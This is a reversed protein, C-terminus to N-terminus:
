LSKNNTTFINNRPTHPLPLLTQLSLPQCVAEVSSSAFCKLDRQDTARLRGWSWWGKLLGCVCSKRVGCLSWKCEEATEEVGQRKEADKSRGTDRQREARGAICLCSKLWRTYKMRLDWRHKKRRGSTSPYYSKQVARKTCLRIVPINSASSEWKNSLFTQVDLCM